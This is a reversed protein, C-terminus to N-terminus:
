FVKSPKLKKKFGLTKCTKDEWYPGYFYDVEDYISDVCKFQEGAPCSDMFTTGEYYTCESRTMPETIYEWCYDFEEDYCAGNGSNSSSSQRSSSSSTSTAPYLDYDECTSGYNNYIYSYKDFYNDYCKLKYGTPCSNMPTGEYYSICESRTITGTISEYCYDDDYCVGSALSSSSSSPSAPSFGLSECTEGTYYPGYFYFIEDYDMCKLVQGSPCTSMPTGGYYTCESSTVSGTRSEWCIDDEYTYCAGSNSYDGGDNFLDECTVGSATVIQGYVYIYGGEIPCNLKWTTPCSNKVSATEAGSVDAIYQCESRTLSETTGEACMALDGAGSGFNALYCAGSKPSFEKDDDDDDIFTCAFLAFAALAVALYIKKM